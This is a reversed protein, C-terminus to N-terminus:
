KLYAYKTDYIYVLCKFENKNMNNNIIYVKIMQM